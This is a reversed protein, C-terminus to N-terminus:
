RRLEELLNRHYTVSNLAERLAKRTRADGPLTGALSRINEQTERLASEVGPRLKALAETDGSERAAEIEERLMLTQTLVPQPVSRDQAASPGGSLELLYEARHVPDALVEYARNVRAAVEMSRRLVTEDAGPFRDPHVERSLGIYRRRLEAADLAYGRPLGFILFYDQRAGDEWLTHCGACVIPNDMPRACAACKAPTVPQPPPASRADSM